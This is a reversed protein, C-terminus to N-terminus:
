RYMLFVVFQTYKKAKSQSFAKDTTGGFISFYRLKTNFVFWFSGDEDNPFIDNTADNSSTTGRWKILTLPLATPFLLRCMTWTQGLLVRVPGNLSSVVLAHCMSDSLALRALWILYKNGECTTFQPALKSESETQAQHTQKSEADFEVRLCMSDGTFFISSPCLCAKPCGKEMLPARWKRMHIIESLISRNM